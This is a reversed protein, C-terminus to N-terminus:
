VAQVGADEAAVPLHVLTFFAIGTRVIGISKGTTAADIAPQRETAIAHHISSLCTIISVRASGITAICPTGQFLFYDTRDGAKGDDRRQCGHELWGTQQGGGGTLCHCM